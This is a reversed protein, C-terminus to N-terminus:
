PELVLQCQGAVCNIVGQRVLKADSGEPFFQTMRARKLLPESGNLKDDGTLEAREIQGHSLLLQQLAAESQIKVAITKQMFGTGDANMVYVVDSREIVFPEGSYSDAASKQAVIVCSSLAFVLAAICIRLPHSRM